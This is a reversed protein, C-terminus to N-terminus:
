KGRPSTSMLIVWTRPSKMPVLPGEIVLLGGDSNVSAPRCGIRWTGVSYDARCVDLEAGTIASPAYRNPDITFRVQGSADLYNNTLQLEYAELPFADAIDRTPRGEFNTIFTNNGLLTTLTEDAALPRGKDKICAAARDVVSGVELVRQLGDAAISLTYVQSADFGTGSAAFASYDLGPQSVLTVAHSQGAPITPYDLGCLATETPVPTPDPTVVAENDDSGGCAAVLAACAVAVLGVRKFGMVAKIGKTHQLARGTNYCHTGHPADLLHRSPPRKPAHPDSRLQEFILCIAVSLSLRM